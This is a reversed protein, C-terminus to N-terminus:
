RSEEAGLMLELYSGAILDEEEIGFAQRLHAVKGEGEERSDAPSLVAEFEIFEGLDSVRDLHIRVNEWQWLTRTKEVVGLVGLAEGLLDGLGRTAPAIAFDSLRPGRLDPRRYFILEDGGPVCRRLKLRGEPVGFYTDAQRIEGRPEAGLARCVEAARNRDALRAKLEVNQM